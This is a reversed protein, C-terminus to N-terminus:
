GPTDRLGPPAGVRRMLTALDTGPEHSFTSGTHRLGTIRDVRFARFDKRTECWAALTWVNGWYFCGLPRVTRESTAGEADRYCLHVRQRNEVAWRLQQLNVLGNAHETLRPAFIAQAQARTRLGAPLASLVKSLASTLGGALEPDLWAHALRASAVLASAETSTLMLPPLQFGSGMRYGTGAAGEIPIGQQQLDAIDRYVTRESVELREALWTATSLRRGRILQVIQFLRDARRM